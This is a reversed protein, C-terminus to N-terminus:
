GKVETYKILHDIIQNIIQDSIHPYTDVLYKIDQYLVKEKASLSTDKDDESDRKYIKNGSPPPLRPPRLPLPQSTALQSQLSTDKNATNSMKGPSKPPRSKNMKLKFRHKISPDFFSGDSNDWDIDMEYEYKKIYKLKTVLEKKNNYYIKKDTTAVLQELWNTFGFFLENLRGCGNCHGREPEFKPPVLIDNIKMQQYGQFKGTSTEVKTNKGLFKILRDTLYEKVSEIFMQKYRKYYINDTLGTTFADLIKTKPLRINIFKSLNDRLLNNIKLFIDTDEEFAFIKGVFIDIADTKYELNDKANKFVELLQKLFEKNRDEPQTDFKWNGFQPIHNAIEELDKYKDYKSDSNKLSLIQFTLYNKKFFPIIGLTFIKQYIDDRAGGTLNVLKVKTHKIHINM